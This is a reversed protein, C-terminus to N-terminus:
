MRCLPERDVANYLGVVRYLHCPPTSEVWAACLTLMTKKEQHCIRAAAAIADRLVQSSSRSGVVRQWFKEGRGSRDRCVEGQDEIEQEGRMVAIATLIPAAAM